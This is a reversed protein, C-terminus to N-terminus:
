VNLWKVVKDFDIILENDKYTDNTINFFDDIFGNPVSSYKKLFNNM